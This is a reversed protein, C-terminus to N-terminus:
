IESIRTLIGVYTYTNKCSLNMQKKSHCFEIGDDICGDYVWFKNNMLRPVDGCDTSISLEIRRVILLVFIGIVRLTMRLHHMWTYVTRYITSISRSTCKNESIEGTKSLQPTPAYRKTQKLNSKSARISNILCNTGPSPRKM